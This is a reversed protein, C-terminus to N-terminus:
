LIVEERKSFCRIHQHFSLPFFLWLLAFLIDILLLVAFERKWVFFYCKNKWLFYLILEVSNYVNKSNTFEKESTWKMNLAAPNSNLSYIM